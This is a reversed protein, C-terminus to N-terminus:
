KGLIKMIETRYMNYDKDGAFKTQYSGDKFFMVWPVGRFDFRRFLNVQKEADVNYFGFRDSFEDELKALKPKVARCVHCSTTTFIVMCPECEDYIIEDFSDQDLERM